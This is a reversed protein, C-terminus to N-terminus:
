QTLYIVTSIGHFLVANWNEETGPDISRQQGRQAARLLLQQCVVCLMPNSGPATSFLSHFCRLTSGCVIANLSITKFM